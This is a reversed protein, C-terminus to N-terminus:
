LEPTLAIDADAGAAEAEEILTEVFEINVADLIIVTGDAASLTAEGSTSFTLKDYVKDEAAGTNTIPTGETDGSGFYITNDKLIFGIGLASIESKITATINNDAVAVTMIDKAVDGAGTDTYFIGGASIVKNAAALRKAGITEKTYAGTEQNDVIDKVVLEYISSTIPESAVGSAAKAVASYVVNTADTKVTVGGKGELTVTKTNGGNPTIEMSDGAVEGNIFNITFKGSTEDWGLEATPASPAKEVEALVFDDFLVYPGTGGNDGKDTGGQGLSYASFQITDTSEDTTVIYKLEKWDGYEDPGISESYQEKGMAARTVGNVAGIRIAAHNSGKTMVKFSLYYTKNKEVNFNTMFSCLGGEPDNYRSGFAYTGNPISYTEDVKVETGGDLFSHKDAQVKYGHGAGDNSGYVTEVARHWGDVSFDSDTEFSPNPILNEESIVGYVKEDVTVQKPLADKKFKAENKACVVNITNESSSLSSITKDSTESIVYNTGNSNFSSLPKYTFNKGEYTHINDISDTWVTADGANYNVTVTTHNKDPTAKYVEFDSYYHRDFPSWAGLNIMIYEGVINRATNNPVYIIYEHKTLGAEHKTTTNSSTVTGTVSIESSWDNYGGYDIASLINSNVNLSNWIEDRAGVVATYEGSDAVTSFSYYSVYYSNGPEVDVYRRIVNNSNTGGNGQTQGSHRVAANGYAGYKEGTEWGIVQEGNIGNTWNELGKSFDNNQVLNEGTLTYKVGDYEYTDGAKTRAPAAYVTIEKTINPEEVTATLKVPTVKEPATFTIKNNEIKIATNEEASWTISLPTDFVVDNVTSPLEVDGDVVPNMAEVIPNLTANATNETPAAAYDGAYIKLNHYRINDSWSNNGMIAFVITKLAGLARDERGYTAKLEYPGNEASATYYGVRYANEGTKYAVIRMYTYNGDMSNNNVIDTAGDGFIDGKDGTSGSIYTLKNQVFGPNEPTVGARSVSYMLIVNNEADKFAVDHKANDNSVSLGFQMVFFDNNEGYGPLDIPTDGGAGSALGGYVQLADGNWNVNAPKGNQTNNSNTTGEGSYPWGSSWGEGAQSLKQDSSGYDGKEFVPDGAMYILLQSDVKSEDYDSVAAGATIGFMPVVAMVMALVVALSLIKKIRM